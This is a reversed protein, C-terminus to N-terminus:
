TRRRANDDAVFASSRVQRVSEGKGFQVHEQSGRTGAVEILDGGEDGCREREVRGGFTAVVDPV